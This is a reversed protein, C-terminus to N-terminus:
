LVHNVKLDQFIRVLQIRLVRIKDEIGFACYLDRLMKNSLIQHVHIMQKQVKDRM